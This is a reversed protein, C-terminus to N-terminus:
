GAQPRPLGRARRPLEVDGQGPQRDAGDQVERGVAFGEARGRGTVSRRPEFPGHDSVGVIPNRRDDRSSRIDASGAVVVWCRGDPITSYVLQGSSGRGRVSPTFPCVARRTADSSGGGTNKRPPIAVAAPSPLCSPDGQLSPSLEVEARKAHGGLAARM